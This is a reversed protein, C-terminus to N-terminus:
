ESDDSRSKFAQFVIWCANLISGAIFLSFAALLSFQAKQLLSMDSAGSFNPDNAVMPLLLNQLVFWIAGIILSIVVIRIEVRLFMAILQKKEARNDTM